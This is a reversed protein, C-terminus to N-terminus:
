LPPIRPINLINEPPAKLLNVTNASPIMGYIDADIIM